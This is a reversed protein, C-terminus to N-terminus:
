IKREASITLIKNQYSYDLTFEGEYAIRYLGLQSIGPKPNEMLEMLRETYLMSPDDSEKIKDIHEAVNDKDEESKIGNAVKIMIKENDAHLEFDINSGDPKETGYKVANEILETACMISAESIDKSKKKENMFQATKEQLERVISWTPKISINFSVDENM